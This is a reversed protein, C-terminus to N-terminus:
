VGSTRFSQMAVVKFQFSPTNQLPKSNTLDSSPRCTFVPQTATCIVFSVKYHECLLKMAALIPELYEVPVLQAEDLIVVSNAINHLKRCRSTRAAFLSEFFQVSTTVIIPADWNEAALRSRSTSDDDDLNSHHEVVQDNGLAMRFVDANQEIISTYPIVYIVREKGYKMAHELAFAMSSLTKGGGTPVTLSFLGPELQAAARCDALVQQRARNVATDAVDLAAKTMEAMHENFRGLLESLPQYAGRDTKKQPSMYSETDLFDADVLCSFLMRIWLSM